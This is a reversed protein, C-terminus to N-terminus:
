GSPRMRASGAGGALKAIEGHVYALGAELRAPDRDTLVVPAELRRALLLAIQAAMLGAGVVGVKTVPRALSAAPAGAAHRARKQTLDFAYLGAKLEDSLLTYRLWV